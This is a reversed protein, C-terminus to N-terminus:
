FIGGTDINLDKALMKLNEVVTPNLPIGEKRRKMEIEWEPEGALTIRDVGQAKPLSRYNLMMEDMAKKFDPVPLFTAINFAGFFHNGMTTGNAPAGSLLSCFIDVAVGLGFGKYAGLVPLWGLPLLAGKGGFYDRPNRIPEGQSNVAWGEPLEKNERLAIEVKGAAVVSTAMDLVFPAGSGSPAAISLVNIGIGPGSGGPVVTGKLGVTMSLGIM